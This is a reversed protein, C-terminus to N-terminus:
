ETTTGAEYVRGAFDELTKDCERLRMEAPGASPAHFVDRRKIERFQRRLREMRREVEELKALGLRGNASPKDLRHEVADCDRLLEKWEAERVDVHLNELELALAEDTPEGRFLFVSGGAREVMQVAREIAEELHARAPLAWTAHQLSLAGARRLERWLAVRHRSPEAPIRYTVLLWEV